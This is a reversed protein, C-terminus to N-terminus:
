GHKDKYTAIVDKIISDPSNRVYDVVVGRILKAPVNYGVYFGFLSSQIRPKGHEDFVRPMKEKLEDWTVKHYESDPRDGFALRWDKYDIVNTAKFTRAEMPKTEFYFSFPPIEKYASIDVLLNVKDSRDGWVDGITTTKAEPYWKRKGEVEKRGVINIFVGQKEWEYRDAYRADRMVKKRIEKTRLAWERSNQGGGSLLGEQLIKPLDRKYISTFATGDLNIDQVKQLVAELEEATLDQAAAEIDKVSQGQQPSMPTQESM